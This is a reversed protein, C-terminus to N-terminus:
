DAPTLPVFHVKLRIGYSIGMILGGNNNMTGESKEGGNCMGEMALIKKMKMDERQGETRSGDHKLNKKGPFNGGNKGREGESLDVGSHAGCVGWQWNITVLANRPLCLGYQSRTLM